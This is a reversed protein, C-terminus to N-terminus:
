QFKIGASKIIDAAVQFEQRIAAATQDPGLYSPVLSLGKLKEATDPQQLAKRMEGDVRAIVERPTGAAVMLVYSPVMEFGPFGQEAITPITPLLASREVTTAGLVRLKGSDVHPQLLAATTMQLDVRGTILDPVIASAGKYVVPTLKTKSRMALLEFGLHDSGAHSALGFTVKEPNARAYNVLEAITKFPSTTPTAVIMPIIAIKSVPALDKAPDIPSTKDILPFISLAPTTLLITHGDSGSKAVAEAGVMMGAGPRNEPVVPQGLGDKIKDAVLRALSDTPGGAAFPVILRLPKSPYNQALGGGAAALAALTLALRALKLKM